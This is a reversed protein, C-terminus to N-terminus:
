ILSLDYNTIQHKSGVDPNFVLKMRNELNNMECTMVGCTM